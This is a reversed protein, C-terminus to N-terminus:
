HKYVLLHRWVLKRSGNSTDLILRQADLFMPTLHFPELERAPKSIFADPPVIREISRTFPPYIAM